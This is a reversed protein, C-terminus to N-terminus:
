RKSHLGYVLAVIWHSDDISQPTTVCIVYRSRWNNHDKLFDFSHCNTNIFVKSCLIGHLQSILVSVGARGRSHHDWHYKRFGPYIKWMPQPTRNMFTAGSLSSMQSIGQKGGIRYTPLPAFYEHCSRHRSTQDNLQPQDCGDLVDCMCVHGVTVEYPATDMGLLGDIILDRWHM